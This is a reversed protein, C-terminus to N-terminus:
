TTPQNPHYNHVVGRICRGYVQRTCLNLQAIVQRETRLNVPVVHKIM